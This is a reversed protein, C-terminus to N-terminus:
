RSPELQREEAAPQPRRAFRAQLVSGGVGFLLALGVTPVMGSVVALRADMGVLGPDFAAGLGALIVVVTLVKTSREGVWSAAVLPLFWLLYWFHVVPSLVVFALVAGAVWRAAAPFSGTPARFAIATVIIIAMVSGIARVVTVSSEAWTTAGLVNFIIEALQGLQTSASFPTRAVTPVTLASLWGVGLGSVLGVGVLTGVSIAAIASLRGLRAWFGAGVALSALAIGICILGGPLKVAAALGGVAAALVWAYSGLRRNVVLIMALAMLGIMLMDNHLGAVGHTIIIPSPLVLWAATVPDRGAMRALRPVAYALIALGILALLRHWIVLVWPDGVVGAGLAGWILPVPGYPAPTFAWLVEVAEVIPGQMISTPWDYPNIGTATMVGQAAYSWGDRSFLPPALLLPLSWLASALYLVNLRGREHMGSEAIEKRLGLWAAALLGIGLMLVSLSLMRVQYSDRLFALVPLQAVVHSQPLQVVVLSAFFLLLSGAVGRGLLARLRRTMQVDALYRALLRGFGSRSASVADRNPLKQACTQM